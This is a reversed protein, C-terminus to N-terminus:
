QVQRHELSLGALDEERVVWLLTEEVVLSVLFVPSSWQAVVGRLHAMFRLVTGTSVSARLSVVSHLVEVM